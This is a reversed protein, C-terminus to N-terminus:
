WQARAPAVGPVQAVKVRAGTRKRPFLVAVTVTVAVAMVAVVAVVVAVTVMIIVAVDGKKKNRVKGPVILCWSRAKLCRLYIDNASAPGLCNKFQRPWPRYTTGSTPFALLM